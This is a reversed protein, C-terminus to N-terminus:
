KQHAGNLLLLQCNSTSLICFNCVMEICNGTSFFFFTSPKHQISNVHYCNRCLSSGSPFKITHTPLSSIGKYSVSTVNNQKKMQKRFFNQLLALTYLYCNSVQYHVWIFTLSTNVILVEIFVVGYVVVALYNLMTNCFLLLNVCDTYM